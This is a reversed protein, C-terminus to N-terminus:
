ERTLGVGKVGSETQHHVYVFHSHLIESIDVRVVRLVEGVPSWGEM